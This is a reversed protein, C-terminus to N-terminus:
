DWRLAAARIAILFEGKLGVNPSMEQGTSHEITIWIPHISVTVGGKCVYVPSLAFAQNTLLMNEGAQQLLQISGYPGGFTIM